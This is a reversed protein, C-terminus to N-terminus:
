KVILKGAMGRDKHDGDSTFSCYIDYTGAALEVPESTASKGAKQTEQAFAAAPWFLFMPVFLSAAFFRRCFMTKEKRNM